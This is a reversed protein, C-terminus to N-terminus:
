WRMRHRRLCTGRTLESQPPPLTGAFNTVAQGQRGYLDSEIQLQLITRSGGHQMTQQAYWLRQLRM